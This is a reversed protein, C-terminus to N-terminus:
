RGYAIGQAVDALNSSSQISGKPGAGSVLEACAVREILHRVLVLSELGLDLLVSLLSCLEKSTLHTGLTHEGGNMDVRTLHTAPLLASTSRPIPLCGIYAGGDMPYLVM